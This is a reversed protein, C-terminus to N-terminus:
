FFRYSIKNMLQGAERCRDIITQLREGLDKVMVTHLPTAPPQFAQAVIGDALTEAREAMRELREYLGKIRDLSEFGRLQRIMDLLVDSLEEIWTFAPSFDVAEQKEDALEAREAFKKAAATIEALASALAEIDAKPLSAIIAHSLHTRIEEVIAACRRVPEDAAAPPPTEETAKRALLKVSARAQEGGAELLDYLRGDTLEPVPNM